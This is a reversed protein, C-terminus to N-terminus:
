MGPSSEMVFGIIFLRETGVGVGEGVGVGVIVGVGVGVGVGVRVGLGVGVGAGKLVGAGVAEGDALEEGVEGRGVGAEEPEAEGVIEGDEVGVGLGDEVEEDPDECSAALKVVVTQTGGTCFAATAVTTDTAPTPATERIKAAAPAPTATAESVVVVAEAAPVVPFAVLFILSRRGSVALFHSSSKTEEFRLSATVSFVPEGKRGVFGSDM